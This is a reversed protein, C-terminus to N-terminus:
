PHSAKGPDPIMAAQEYTGDPQRAWPIVVDGAKVFAPPDAIDDPPDFAAKKQYPANQRETIRAPISDLMETVIEAPTTGREEAQAGVWARLAGDEEAVDFLAHVRAKTLGIERTQLWFAAWNPHYGEPPERVVRAPEAEIEGQEIIEGTSPDFDTTEESHLFMPAGLIVEPAFWKAGNRMAAAFLMNRPHSKWPSGDRVLGARQADAMSFASEGLLDGRRYFTLRCEDADHAVIRFDYGGRRVLNAVMNASLQVNVKRREGQGTEIIHIGMMSAVPGFGLEKGAQIKVIAQSASSITPFFGSAVLVAAMNGDDGFRSLMTGAAQASEVIARDGSGVWRASDASPGENDDTM